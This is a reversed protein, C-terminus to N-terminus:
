SGIEFDAFVLSCAALESCDCENSANIMQNWHFGLM